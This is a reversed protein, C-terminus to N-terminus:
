SEVTCPIHVVPEVGSEHEGEVWWARVNRIVLTSATAFVAKADDVSASRQGSRLSLIGAVCDVDHIVRPELEDKLTQDALRMALAKEGATYEAIRAPARMIQFGAAIIDHEILAAMERIDSTDVQM